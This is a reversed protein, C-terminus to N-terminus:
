NQTIDECRKESDILIAKEGSLTIYDQCEIDVGYYKIYFGRKEIESYLVLLGLMPFNVSYKWRSKLLTNVYDIKREMENNFKVKNRQSSFFFKINGDSVSTFYPSKKLNYEIGRRTM